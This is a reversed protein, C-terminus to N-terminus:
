AKKQSRHAQTASSIMNMTVFLIIGLVGFLVNIRMATKIGLSDSLIGVLMPGFICGAAGMSNFLGYATGKLHQPIIKSLYTTMAVTIICVVCAHMLQVVILLGPGQALTLVFWRAAGIMCGTIIVTTSKLRSMLRGTVLAFPIEFFGSAAMVISATMVSLTLEANFYLQLYTFGGIHNLNTLFYLVYVGIIRLLVNKDVGKFLNVSKEKMDTYTQMGSNRIYKVIILLEIGCLVVACLFLARYGLLTLMIGNVLSFVMWGLSGGINYVAFNRGEKGKLTISSIVAYNVSRFIGACASQIVFAISLFIINTSVLFVVHM